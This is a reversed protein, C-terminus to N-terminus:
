GYRLAEVPDIDAAKAAPIAAGIVSFLVGGLATTWATTWDVQDPVITFYYVSPDWILTGHHLALATAILTLVSTGLLWLLISLLRGIWIARGLGVACGGAFVFTGIWIAPPADSGIAEHIANINRIVGWALLVGLCSGTVGIILGYRLFIWLVGGRSAGISRLIGIDRTKEVVIAWFISLILGACVLYILSFLVRMMEREKEVPTILDRLQQEWTLISVFEPMKARRTPDAKIRSSFDAYRADVAERLDNANTGARARVLIKTVRSPAKGIIPYNGEADPEANLDFLPADDMRLLRQGEKLPIYIRNKDIEYIGTQLENVIPFTHERPQSLTGSGSIPVVTLTVDMGPMFWNYRPLYSGDRQRANGVSVHMGLTIGPTGTRSQTLTLGDQLISPSLSRRPDDPSMTAAAAADAPPRWYLDQAYDTVTAFSLPDVAWVQVHVIEKQNGSPYPMRLMGITDILPTAGQVSPLGKLDAVFEDSYPMGGIGSSVIVDGVVLRGSDKLMNLFGTMVSVVTVVLAVCLAVAAIAIFPILRSTLYRNSLLAAYVSHGM